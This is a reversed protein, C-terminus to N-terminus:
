FLKAIDHVTIVAMLLLLLAFGVQHITNEVKYNVPRGKIKEVILFFARGGDLAPFPLINLIALNISLVITLNLVYAWGLKVAQGTINAIGVPGAVDSLLATHGVFLGVLLGWLMVVMQTTMAYLAEGGKIFAQYWPYHVFAVEEMAIGIAGQNPGPNTRPVVVKDVTVRGDQLVLTLPKGKNQDSLQQVQDLSTAPYYKGGARIGLIAEGVAIGAHAAPSGPEVQVVTVHKQSYANASIGYTSSPLGFMLGFSLLLYALLLNMFVGAVTVAFRKGAPQNAFSYKGEDEETGNEAVMSVFGGLPIANLSYVTDPDVDKTVEPMKSHPPVIHWKRTVRDRYVGAIRPPFGFGFEKVGIGSLKAVIFHGFEHSLILVALIAIFVLITIFLSM